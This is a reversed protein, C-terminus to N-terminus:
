PRQSRLTAAEAWCEESAVARRELERQQTEADMYYWWKKKKSPSVPRQLQALTDERVRRDLSDKERVTQKTKLLGDLSLTRIPIEDLYITQQFPILTDFGHAFLAYGGILIYDAGHENLAVILSKLDEKTASRCFGEESMKKSQM